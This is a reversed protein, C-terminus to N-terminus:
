GERDWRFVIGWGGGHDTDVAVVVEHRGSTLNVKVKSRWPDLPNRREPVCLLERGDLFVKAGGDHGLLISRVGAEEVQFAHALYVIGDADGFVNHVNVFPDSGAPYEKWSGTDPPAVVDRVGGTGKPFLPSLRWDTVSPSYRIPSHQLAQCDLYEEDQNAYVADLIHLTDVAAAVPSEHYEGKHIPLHADYFQNLLDFQPAAHLICGLRNGAVSLANVMSEGTAAMHGSHLAVRLNVTGVAEVMKSVADTSMAYRQPHSQLHVTVGKEGAQQCLARLANVFGEQIWEGSWNGYDMTRHLTLILDRAGVMSMKDLVDVMVQRSAETDTPVNGLLTLDPFLNMIPSLDVAIRVRQRKLWDVEQELQKRDRDRFYTADVKVGDFHQFFTPRCLLEEKINRIARLALFRNRPLSPPCPAPKCQVGTEEVWVAFMRFDGGAIHHADGPGGDHNGMGTPWYGVLGKESQSLVLERAELLKGCRSQIQFPRGSLANNHIGLMYEGPGKRCTVFGLGVGVEFLQQGSLANALTRRVHRLLRYPSALPTDDATLIRGTVLPEANLGFDSLLVTIRGAGHPMRVVVPRDDCRALVEAMDPLLVPTRLEFADEECDSQGDNWTVMTGADCRVTAAPSPDFTPLLGRANAATIVLHGGESVFDLLKHRLECTMELRGAAIVLGYQNVVWGPADSLLADTMDGFPTDSLFGREDRYFGSDEYGPYLLSFLGHTLFDGHDYPMGGWVQYINRSYMHRPTVWGAFFDLLLAVPAHMVGPQGQQDAFDKVGRHVVGMPTLQYRPKGDKDLAATEDPKLWNMEFGMSVCNYLYHTYILRRQLNLSAGEDPGSWHWGDTQKPGDDKWGWANFCSVGSFWLVGYQRCAGRIFAYYLQSNPLSQATEAGLLVHNGEKLFYHGFALSVLASMHNGLVHCYKEFHRQFMLYQQRRDSVSPCQQQGTAWVYRGDQEGNDVGLFQDGLTRAMWAAPSERGDAPCCVQSQYDWGWVDMLFLGRKRVEEVAEKLHPATLMNFHPWIVRGLKFEETYRILDERWTPKSLDRLSSFQPRNGFAAWTPVRVSRRHYDPYLAPDVLYPFHSSM